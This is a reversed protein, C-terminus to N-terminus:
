QDEVNEKEKSETEDVITPPTFDSKKRSPLSRSIRSIGIFMMVVGAITLYTAYPAENGLQSFMLIAGVFMLAYYIKMKM